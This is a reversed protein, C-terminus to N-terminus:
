AICSFQLTSEAGFAGFMYQFDFKLGHVKEPDSYKDYIQTKFPGRMFDNCLHASEKMVPVLVFRINNKNPHDKFLEVATMCTRLM